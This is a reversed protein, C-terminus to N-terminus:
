ACDGRWLCANQGCQTARGSDFCEENGEAKQISRVLESKKAKGIKINHQRAIEKIDNIKM